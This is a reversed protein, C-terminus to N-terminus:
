IRSINDCIKRKKNQNECLRRRLLDSPLLFLGDGFFWCSVLGLYNQIKKNCHYNRRESLALRVRKEKGQYFGVTLFAFAGFALTVFAGLSFFTREQRRGV